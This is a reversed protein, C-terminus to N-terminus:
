LMRGSEDRRGSSTKGLVARMHLPIHDLNEEAGDHPHGELIFLDGPQKQVPYAENKMRQRRANRQNHRITTRTKGRAEEEAAVEATNTAITWSFRFHARKLIIFRKRIQTRAMIEYTDSAQEWKIGYTDVINKLEDKIESNQITLM